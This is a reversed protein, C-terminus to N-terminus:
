EPRQVEQEGVPELRSLFRDSGRGREVRMVHVGAVVHLRPVPEVDPPHQPVGDVVRGARQRKLEHEVHGGGVRQGLQARHKAVDHQEEHEGRQHDRGGHEHNKKKKKGCYTVMTLRGNTCQFRTPEGSAIQSGDTALANLMKRSLRNKSEM